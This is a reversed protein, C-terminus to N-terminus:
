LWCEEFTLSAVVYNVMGELKPSFKTPYGKLYEQDTGTLTNDRFKMLTYTGDLGANALFLYVPSHADETWDEIYKMIGNLEDMVNTVQKDLSIKCSPISIVIKKKDDLIAFSQRGVEHKIKSLMTWTPTVDKANLYIIDGAPADPTGPTVSTSIAIAYSNSGGQTTM